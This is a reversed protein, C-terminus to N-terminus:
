IEGLEKKLHYQASAIKATPIRYPSCSVYDLGVSLVFEISAPDGGHEGCIGMKVKKGTANAKDVAMKVMPGVGSVDMSVFPDVGFINKDLYEGMFSATDDRSFGLTMQTLDNTGFSFFDAHQAIKDALVCARPIEIMTGVLYKLEVGYDKIVRNATDEVLKRLDSLEKEFAVLPIMIEVCTEVGEKKLKCAAEILAETQMEYIEPYTIALRCGRHGLMPNFEHLKDSIDKLAAESKGTAKVLEAIDENTKPLFEHLPPDLLRVTIPRIGMVKLIEYFDQMQYPKVKNLATKREELTEALIMERVALIRDKEFFMHETRCLGIGDAEFGIAVKADKPTDANARVRTKSYKKSWELLTSLEDSSKSSSFELKGLYVMGESGDISVYDGEKVTIEGVRIYKADEDVIIASCGAVCTKGMSRAVVAAHSTMGGRATLIGKADIMGALDEPSTEKRVLLCDEGRKKAEVVDKAHFYVKGCAAGPSAALGKALVTANKKAEDSFDPHLLASVSDAPIRLLATKEDILGEKVLDMAIKIAAKATRKGNRTQLLYINGREITFEIDQVDRYHNELKKALTYIQKYLEPHDENLSNIPRPTRIGAVVDEGQANFLFEGFLEDTGNAPNRSFLVGTGSSTDYNGFVMRQVNVATGLKDSIGNVKRYLIARNNNWSRFVAEVGKLLQDRANTPFDEGTEKKVIALFDKIINLMVDKDLDKFNEVGKKELEAELVKDFKTKDIELVVDSYMQIFRRYNDYAFPFNDTRKAIIEAVEANIGLNLVTDMMGPMSIPSGSRVSVLLPNESDQFRQGSKEELRKVAEDIETVVEDPLKNGNEFYKFNVETTVTFGQPVPLGISAMEALNAGKGGLLAKMEKSGKEFDYVWSM